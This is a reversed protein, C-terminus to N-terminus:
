PCIDDHSSEEDDPQGDDPQGDDTQGGNLELMIRALKEADFLGMHPVGYRRIYIEYERKISLTNTVSFEVEFLLSNFGGYHKEVYEALKKRNHLIEHSEQLMANQKGLGTNSKHLLAAANVGNITSLIFSRYDTFVDESLEYEHIEQDTFEFLDNNVLMLAADSLIKQTAESTLDAFDGEGYKTYSEALTDLILTNMRDLKMMQERLEKNTILYDDSDFDDKNKIIDFLLALQENSLEDEGSLHGEIRSHIAAYVSDRRADPYTGGCRGSPFDEDWGLDKEDRIPRATIRSSPCPLVYWLGMTPTRGIGLDELSSAVNAKHFDDFLSVTDDHFPYSEKELSEDEFTVHRERYSFEQNQKGFGNDLDNNDLTDDLADDLTDDLTDDVDEPISDMYDIYYLEDSYHQQDVHVFKALESENLMLRNQDPREQVYFEKDRISHLNSAVVDQIYRSVSAVGDEPYSPPSEVVYTNGPGNSAKLNQLIVDKVYTTLQVNPDLVDGSYNEIATQLNYDASALVDHAREESCGLVQMLINVERSPPIDRSPPTDRVGRSSLPREGRVGRSSKPRRVGDGGGVVSPPLPPIEGRSSKPRQVSNGGVVSPTGVRASLPREESPPLPPADGRIFYRGDASEEITADIVDRIFSSLEQQGNGSDDGYTVYYTTDLNLDSNSTM